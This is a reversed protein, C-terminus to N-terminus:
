LEKFRKCFNSEQLDMFTVVGLHPLTLIAILILYIGLISFIDLNLGGLFFWLAIGGFISIATNPITRLLTKLPFLSFANAHQSRENSFAHLRSLHRTSHWFCFYLGISLLPHISSFLFFLILLEIADIWGATKGEKQVQLFLFTLYLFILLLLCLFAFPLVPYLASLLHHFEVTPDIVQITWLAVDSYVAPYCIATLGMPLSGRLFIVFLQVPLRRTYSAGYARSLVYLDGQGWHVWTIGIFLLFAIEPSLFWFGLFALAVALYAADILLLRSWFAKPKKFARVLIQDDLAGHPLGFLIISALFPLFLLYPPWDEVRSDNLFFAATLLILAVPWQPFVWKRLVQADAQM